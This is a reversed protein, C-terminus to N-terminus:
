DSVFAREDASCIEMKVLLRNKEELASRNKVQIYYTTPEVGEVMAMRIIEIGHEPSAGHEEFKCASGDSRKSELTKAGNEEHITSVQLVLATSNGSPWQLM